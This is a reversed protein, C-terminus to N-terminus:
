GSSETPICDSPECGLWEIEWYVDNYNWKSARGYTGASGSTDPCSNILTIIGKEGTIEELINTSTSRKYARATAVEYPGCPSSPAALDDLLVFHVQRPLPDCEWEGPWGGVPALPGTMGECNLSVGDGLDDPHFDEKRDPHTDAPFALDEPGLTITAVPTENFSVRVRTPVANKLVSNDTDLLQIRSVWPKPLVSIGPVVITYRETLGAYEQFFKEFFHQADTDTRIWPLTINIKKEGYAAISPAHFVNRTYPAFGHQTGTGYVYGGKFIVRNWMLSRDTTKTLKEVDVGVKYSFNAAPLLEKMFFLGNEEVGWSMWGASVALQRIVQAVNEEGRFVMSKLPTSDGTDIASLAIPTNPAITNTYIDNVVTPIDSATVQQQVENDPDNPFYDDDAYLIPEDQDANGRGGLSLDNLYSLWGHLRVTIGSPLEETIEEVRAMYWPTSADYCFQINDGVGFPCNGIAAALTMSGEACGGQRLLTFEASEVLSSSLDGQYVGASNYVKFIREYAM